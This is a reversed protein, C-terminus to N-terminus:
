KKHPNAVDIVVKVGDATQVQTKTVNMGFKKAESLARDLSNLLLGADRVIGKINMKPKSTDPTNMETNMEASKENEPKLLEKVYHLALRSDYRKERCYRFAAIRTKPELKAFAVATCESFGLAKIHRKERPTLDLLSLKDCLQKLPIGVLESTQQLTYNENLMLTRLTEAAEFMDTDGRLLRELVGNVATPLKEAGVANNEPIVGSCVDAIELKKREEGLGIGAIPKLKETRKDRIDFSM